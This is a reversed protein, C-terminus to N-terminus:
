IIQSVIYAVAARFQIVIYSISDHMIVIAFFFFFVLFTLWNFFTSTQGLGWESGWGVAAWEGPALSPGFAETSGRPPGNKQVDSQPLSSVFRICIKIM